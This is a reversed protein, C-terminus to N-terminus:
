WLQEAISAIVFVVPSCQQVLLKGFLSRLVVAFFFLEACKIAAVSRPCCFVGFLHLLYGKM